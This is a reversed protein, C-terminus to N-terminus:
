LNLKLVYLTGNIGSLVVTDSEFYPFVSWVGKFTASDSSPMTDMFAVETLLGKNAQSYDLVRLGADYNAQYILGDKTYMNHDIAKESSLFTGTHKIDTLDTFDWIYTKTNFKYKQEDLEDGLFFYSHDESLWGQHTYRVTEYSSVSIQVPATKDTVDVVNVSDENSSVCIERGLYRSDPGAYVVCQVDHTYANGDRAGPPKEYVGRGVCNVFQPDVPNRIDIIHLGGDCTRTGVAYAYGTDENIFINHANGFRSYHKVPTLTKVSTGDHDRLQTMDVVQMGHRWAESVIYAFNKYIKIDRWQSSMSQTKVDAVHVPNTPDTIDVFSTKSDLGMIAYEKGTMPDTWGWIDNGKRAGLGSTNLDLASLLTSNLSKVEPLNETAFAFNLILLSISIWKM